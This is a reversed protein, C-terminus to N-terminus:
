AGRAHGCLGRLGALLADLRLELGQGRLGADVEEAARPVLDHVDALRLRETGAHTGVEAGAVRPDPELLHDLPDLPDLDDDGRGLRLREVQLLVQDAAVPRREVHPQAVVLRVRVDGDGDLVLERPDHERALPVPAADDVEARVGVRLLHALREVDEVAGERVPRALPRLRAAVGPDRAEVEVDLAAERRADAVHGLLVVAPDDVSDDLEEAALRLRDQPLELRLHLRGGLRLAELLRRAAAVPEVRHAVQGLPLRRVLARDARDVHDPDRGRGVAGGHLDEREAAPPEDVPM